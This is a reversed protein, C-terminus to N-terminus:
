SKKPEKGIICGAAKQAEKPATWPAYIYKSPMKALEPVFERIFKGQVVRKHSRSVAEFAEPDKVNLSSDM